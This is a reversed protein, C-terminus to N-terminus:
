CIFKRVDIMFLVIPSESHHVKEKNYRDVDYKGGIQYLLKSNLVM